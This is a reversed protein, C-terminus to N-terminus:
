RHLPANCTYWGQRWVGRPKAGQAAGQLIGGEMGRRLPLGWAFGSGFVECRLESCGAEEKFRLRLFLPFLYSLEQAYIQM